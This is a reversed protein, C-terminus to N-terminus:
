VKTQHGSISVYVTTLAGSVDYALATNQSTRFLGSDSQLAAGGGAPLPMTYLVSGGTGDRFDVYGATASTNYVVIATVVNRTGAVAGFNSFATSTGGTDSVRESLIDGAPRNARVLLAGDIDVLLDSRDAASVMTATALSAIARAGVKVPNGSDAADHAVGGGTLTTLTALTQSASLGVTWTGSQTAAVTGDVTLSGGGDAVPIVVGSAIGQVTIVDASATGATGLAPQKAATAAGSPLASSSVVVAGTNVATIKGNISSLSSVAPDDSGLTVRPVTAGVAGAGAAIGAQGVILNVKARDSEDWDDIVALSTVAPDDSGLTVRQTGASVAGAGGVILSQTWSGESGSLIVGSGLPIVSTDGSFTLSAAAFTAGGSGSNATVNDAM